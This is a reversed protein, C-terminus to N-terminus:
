VKNKVIAVVFVLSTFGGTTVTTARLYQPIAANSATEVRQVSRDSAGSLAAFSLVDSWSSDDASGEIKVTVDTGAVTLVHLYGTAGHSISAATDLSEESDAATHTASGPTLLQGWEVGQANGVVQVALSLAGDQSRTPDYNIQKGLISAAGSGIVTGRCYTALIDTTPLASLVAHEQNAAPNFHSVWEMAGDRLGGVREMGSKDIGTVDLVALPAGVRGLSAADGSLDYGSVYFADGLGSQKAM